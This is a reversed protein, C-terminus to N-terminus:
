YWNTFGSSKVIGYPCSIYRNICFVKVLTEPTPERKEMPFSKAMLALHSNEFQEHNLELAARHSKVRSYDSSAM